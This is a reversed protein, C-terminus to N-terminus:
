TTCLGSLVFDVETTDSLSQEMESRQQLLKVITPIRWTDRDPVVRKLDVQRIQRASVSTPDLGVERQIIM